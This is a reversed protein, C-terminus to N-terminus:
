ACTAKTPPPTPTAAIAKESEGMQTHASPTRPPMYRKKYRNHEKWSVYALFACWLIVLTGLVIGIPILIRRVVGRKFRKLLFPLAASFCLTFIVGIATVKLLLVRRKEVRQKMRMAQEREKAYEEASLQPPTTTVTQAASPNQEHSATQVANTEVPLGHKVKWREALPRFGKVVDDDTGMIKDPGASMIVYNRGEFVYGIPEGWPDVLDKQNLLPPRDQDDSEILDNLSDPLKGRHELAYIEIAKGMLSLKTRASAYKSAVATANANSADLAMLGSLLPVLMLTHALKM